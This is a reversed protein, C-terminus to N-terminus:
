NQVVPGLVRVPIEATKNDHFITYFNNMDLEDFFFIM